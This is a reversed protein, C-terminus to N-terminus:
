LNIRSMVRDKLVFQHYLAAAIHGGVITLVVVQMADGHLVKGIDYLWDSKEVFSPVAEGALTLSRGKGAFRLYGSIPVIITIVYLAIHAGSMLHKMLRSSYLPEPSQSSQKIVLRAITLCGVVIGFWAHMNLWFVRMESGKEALSRLSDSVFLLVFLTAILWHIIVIAKNYKM